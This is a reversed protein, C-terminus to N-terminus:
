NEKKNGAARRIAGGIAGGIFALIPFYIVMAALLFVLGMGGSVLPIAAKLLGTKLIFDFLVAFTGFTGATLGAKAGNSVDKGAFFGAAIGGFLPGLVPILDFTNVSLVALLIMVFFGLIVAPWFPERSSVM